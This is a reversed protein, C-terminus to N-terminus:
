EKQFFTYKELVEVPNYSLKSKRLGEIGLDEERNVLEVEPFENQMFVQNILPYMGRIVENAKEIHIVAEKGKNILSGISM